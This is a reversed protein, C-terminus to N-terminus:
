MYKFSTVAGREDDYIKVGLDASGLAKRVPEKILCLRLDGGRERCRDMVEALVHMAAPEAHVIRECNVVVNPGGEDIAKHLHRAFPAMSKPDFAGFAIVISVPIEGKSPDKIKTRNTAVKLHESLIVGNKYQKFDYDETPIPMALTRRAVAPRDAKAKAPPPPPEPDLTFHATEMRRTTPKRAVEAGGAILRRRTDEVKTHAKRTMQLQKETLLEREAIIQQLRPFDEGLDFLTDQNSLCDRVVAGKLFGNSVLFAGLQSDEEHMQEYRATVVLARAQDASLFGSTTLFEALSPKPDGPEEKRLAAIERVQDDNLFKLRRALDLYIDDGIAEMAAM